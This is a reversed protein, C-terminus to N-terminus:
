HGAYSYTQFFIRIDKVGNEDWTGPSTEVGHIFRQLGKAGDNLLTGGPIILLWQSNWVSRGVLRSSYTMEALDFGADHYARMAPYKRPVGFGGALSDQLPVWNPALLDEQTLPYPLPLAQDFVTWSHLDALDGSPVRMTDLGIPVLYVRPMNALGGGQDPSLNFANNFNSFWVGVSRIKTAFHSSDYANDGAALPLGFFNQGFQITSRFPIVLAPQAAGAPDFPLCYRKFEPLTLLNTVYCRDLATRWRDDSDRDPAVRFLETRLSFRGTETEPNNFGYRGKLVTWNAQLRALIDALGPDGAPGGPLPKPLDYSEAVLSARGLSRARAIQAMLTRGSLSTSTAVPLATEYDYAKAALYVYRAALDFAAQYRQLADNRFVRFAMNRYRDAQLAGAKQLRFTTQAVQLRQGEGLVSEYEMRAHDAASLLSQIELAKAQASGALLRLEAFDETLQLNHELATIAAESDLLSNENGLELGKILTELGVKAAGIAAYLLAGGVKPLGHELSFIETVGAPIEEGLADGFKAASEAAVDAGQALLTLSTVFGNNLRIAWATDTQQKEIQTFTSSKSGLLNLHTEVEDTLQHFEAVSRRLDSIAGVYSQLAIQLRGAARRQGTYSPPQSPLGQAGLYFQATKIENTLLRYDGAASDQVTVNTVSLTLTRGLNTLGTLDQLNLYNYHLLDPGQYNQPYAQGPGLDDAYPYGYIEVLRNTFDIEAEFVTQNFTAASEAQDRLAQANFRVHDFVALANRWAGLARTYIQDFHTQGADLQAPDLDFPVVGNALGLPNLGGDAHDMQEQVALAQAALGPLEPVTQRDILSIGAHAPDPDHDPLLANGVLWDFYAGMGARSAWEAMGWARNTNGDRMAQWNDGGEGAFLSRYTDSVILTGARAKALASQCFRQEHLFSVGVPETGVNIQESQPLWVFNPNRLLAYYAKTASLYHGWADGHGQPYLAQADGADIAGDLHGNADRLAYNLAYAVEGGTLDSTFNWLLRNYVPYTDISPSYSDDRGRLLALEEDLLTPVQNMFCFISPAAGGWVPDSTGLGITPDLADAYAENGLLVYLDALRGAALLLAQNAGADNFGSDISLRRGKELVTQYIQILGYQNLAELNLPVDGAYPPGAQAVMDLTTLLGHQFDKIRQEYPTIGTMVRKIWGEALASQSWASWNTGAAQQVAGALARYRCRVWHDSLGFIGADGLTISDLGPTALPGYDQWAGPNGLGPDPSTGAAVQWEFEYLQPQGAFDATYRLTQQQDLPNASLIQDLTGSYMPQDVRIIALSIPDSEQVMTPNTSNNFALTVYGLGQGLGASLAISDFPQADNTLVVPDAPLASIAKTWALDAGPLNLAVARNSSSLVNLRLYNYQRDTMEKYQGILQLEQGPAATPNWYLRSRLDPPLESFYTYGDAPNLYTKLSPAVKKLEASRRVTPDLLAVSPNTTRAVSQQYLIAVSKQGRIAPLGDRADSLTGVVNLVPAPNTPWRVTYVWDLPEQTVNAGSLWPIHTGVAPPPTLGPFAFGSQVPYYFRMTINASGLGDDAANRAWLYSKRDRWAAQYTVNTPHNEPCNAPALLSLPLPAQILTGAVIDQHFSYFLNTRVVQFVAMAQRPSSAPPSYQVLVYPPADPTNFDDRLAYVRDGLVLAHEENPNYGPLAPDNQYYVRPQQQAFSQGPRVWPIGPFHELPANRAAPVVAPNGYGGADTLTGDTLDGSDFAYAARLDWDGRSAPAFLNRTIEAPTLVRGWLRVEDLLGVYKNTRTQSAGIWLAGNGPILGGLPLDSQGAPQGNIYFRLGQLGAAYTVALHSKEGLPVPRSASFTRGSTRDQFQPTGANLLLTYEDDGKSLLPMLGTASTPPKIWCELTFHDTLELSLSDAVTLYDDLGDFWLCAGAYEFTESESGLESALVIQSPEAPWRNTYFNVLSPWFIPQNTAVRSQNAWWVELRGPNIPFLQSPAPTFTANTPYHYLNVNYRDGTASRLYGPWQAYPATLAPDQQLHAGSTVWSVNGQLLSVYSSGDAGRGVTATGIQEALAFEAVLYRHFPHEATVARSLWKALDGASLAASWVRVQDLAGDFKVALSNSSGNWGWLLTADGPSSVSAGDFTDQGALQGDIYFQVSDSGGAQVVVAVHSWRNSALRGTSVSLHPTTASPNRYALGGNTVMLNYGNTGNVVLPALVGPQLSHLCVWAELTLADKVRSAFNTTGPVAGYGGQFDLAQHQKPREPQLERGIEWNWDQLDFYAPDTSAVSHVAEFAVQDGDVYKLLCFGPGSTTLSSGQMQAHGDPEQFRMLEVNLKDPFQVNPGLDGSQPDGRVYLQTDPAWDASYHDVEFPWVVKLLSSAMWYVEIQWPQETPRIAYLWQNQRGQTQQYLFAGQPDPNAPDDFGRIVRVSLDGTGYTQVSAPLLRQGLGVALVTVLPELVQVVEVGQLHQLGKSDKSSYTLLFKGRVDKAAHLNNASDLWVMNSDVIQNNYYLTPLVPARPLAVTPAAYPPETWYLRVPRGAATDSILYTVTFLNTGGDLLHWGVTVSGQDIAVLQQTYALWVVRNTDSGLLVPQQTLDAGQPPDLAQGLNYNAPVAGCAMGFRSQAIRLTATAPARRSGTSKFSSGGYFSTARPPSATPNTGGSYWPNIYKTSSLAQGRVPQALAGAGILLWCLFWRATQDARMAITKPEPLLSALTQGLGGGSM